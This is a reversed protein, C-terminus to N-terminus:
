GQVSSLAVGANQLARYVQADRGYIDARFKVRGRADTYATRYILHVPVPEELTVRTNQGSQLRSQFYNVPDDVQKALLAYAFEFPESLRVCGHSFARVERSFLSKAPTDHLYINYKNPFMFKVLGLANSNSPPQRLNFPFTRGTYRAFNIASRPVINGRGDIVQLHGAANRNRRMAPLYEETAISRPVNWYPNIEMYEMVDSFEPTERDPQDKGVVSRTEFTVKDDDIIRAKFDPINVLIHRKGRPKNLWREREMAVLVSKLRESAPVNIARLTAPGAVGDPELGQDSQYEQVAKQLAGDYVATNSRDLYGMAILRNRLAVVAPGGDGPSVKDSQVQAGWGGGAVTRELEFKARVLRTYEGSTPVITRFFADPDGETFDRLYSIPDRLPADRKIGSMLKRPNLIGTQMHRSFLVLTESLEVELAGLAREGQVSAMRARLKEPDYNDTPLGYLGARSVAVLLAARRARHLENDGTWIPEFKTERYFAAIDRNVSATEAVAQKFATVEALAARPEIGLALVALAAGGMLAKFRGITQSQTM